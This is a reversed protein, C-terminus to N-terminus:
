SSDYPAGNCHTSGPPIVKTWSEGGDRTVGVVTADAWDQTWAAALHKADRPNVALQPDNEDDRHGGLENPQTVCTPPLPTAGSIVVPESATLERVAGAPETGPAVVMALMAVVAGASRRFKKGGM